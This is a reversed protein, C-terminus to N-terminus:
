PLVLPPWEAPCRYVGDPCLRWGDAIAALRVSFGPHRSMTVVCDDDTSM